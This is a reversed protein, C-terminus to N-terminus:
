RTSTCTRTGTTSTPRWGSRRSRPCCRIPWAPRSLCRSAPRRAARAAPVAAAQDARGRDARGLGEAARAARGAGDHGGRVEPTVTFGLQATFRAARLIRLPDDTFSAEPAARRGCCGAGAPRGPRRVPRGARYGPLRAAMANVTFDRRALDDELSAGYSVVPKRSTRDYSDSRYTTIEFTSSDKRLGVTGFDIGITWVQDAWGSVIALIRDPPADTTLDLDGSRRGLFVDRVPGGVLALEHGAAAFARRARGATLRPLLAAAQLQRTRIQIQCPCQSYTQAYGTPFPFAPFGLILRLISAWHRALPSSRRPADEPVRNAAIANEAHWRRGSEAGHRAASRRYM